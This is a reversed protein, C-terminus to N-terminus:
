QQGHGPRGSGTVFYSPGPTDSWLTLQQVVVAQISTWDM